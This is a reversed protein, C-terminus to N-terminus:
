KCQYHYEHWTTIGSDLPTMMGLNNIYYTPAGTVQTKPGNWTMDHIPCPVLDSISKGNDKRPNYNQYGIVGSNQGRSQVWVKTSACSALLLSLFVFKM